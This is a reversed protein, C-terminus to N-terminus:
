EDMHFKKIHTKLTSLSKFKKSCWVCKPDGDEKEIFVEKIVEVPVEVEIPVEIEIEEVVNETLYDRRVDPHIVDIENSGETTNVRVVEKVQSRIYEVASKVSYALVCARWTTGDKTDYSIVCTIPRKKAM